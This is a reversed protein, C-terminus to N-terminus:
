ASPVEKAAALAAAKLKADEEDQGCIPLHWVIQQVRLRLEADLADMPLLYEQPRPVSNRALEAADLFKHGETICSPSYASLANVEGWPRDGIGSGAEKYTLVVRPRLGRNRQEDAIAKAVRMAEDVMREVRPKWWLEPAPV